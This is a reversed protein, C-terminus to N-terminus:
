EWRVQRTGNVGTVVARTANFELIIQGDEQIIANRKQHEELYEFELLEGPELSIHDGIPEIWIEMRRTGKNQIRMLNNEQTM